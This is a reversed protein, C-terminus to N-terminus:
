SLQKVAVRTEGFFHVADKCRRKLFEVMEAYMLPTVLTCERCGTDALRRISETYLPLIRGRRSLDRRMFSCTFRVCDESLRHNIVWGVVTGRYRLGLSSVPDFGYSDHRWPELGEAIWASEQHSSIISAREERTLGTWPFIEFDDSPLRVRGFWPATAAGRPTFRVTVTRVVPAAWGRNQFMREVAAIGPKGTMYVAQLRDFGRRRLEDEAAAVLGTGVGARRAKELVYVSLLEPVHPDGQEPAEILVLGVPLEGRWAGIALPQVIRTDGQDPHRASPAQALLHRYAPFTMGHFAEAELRELPRTVLSDVMAYRSAERSRAPHLRGSEFALVSPVVSPAAVRLLQYGIGSLGQFFGPDFVPYEFGSSALRFHKKERARAV